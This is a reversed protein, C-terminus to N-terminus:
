EANLYDSSETIISDTRDIFSYFFLNRLFGEKSTDEGGEGTFAGFALNELLM